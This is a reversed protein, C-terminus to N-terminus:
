CCAQKGCKEYYPGGNNSKVKGSPTWVQGIPNNGSADSAYEQGNITVVTWFHYDGHVVEANLGAASYVARSLNATDACNIHGKNQLCKTPEKYTSCEYGKYDINAVLWEHIAQLKEMDTNKGQCIQQALQNIDEAEGGTIGSSTAGGSSGVGVYNSLDQLNEASEPGYKFDLDFYLPEKKQTRITYGNLYLMEQEYTFPNTLIYFTGGIYRRNSLARCECTNNFDRVYQILLANALYQATELDPASTQVRKELVGYKEVLADYQESILKTGDKDATITQTTQQRQTTTTTTQTQSQQQSLYKEHMLKNDPFREPLQAGGWAITVKNYFGQTNYEMMFVKPDIEKPTITKINEKLTFALWDVYPFLIAANNEVLFVSDTAACIRRICQEFTKDKIQAGGSSSVVSGGTTQGGLAGVIAQAMEEPTAGFVAQAKGQFAQNLEPYTKGAWKDCLSAPCDGHWDKPVGESNFKEMTTFTRSADGRIGLVNYDFNANAADLFSVLSGAMLYVGIKGKADETYSYAGFPTPSIELKEVTYGAQQLAQEVTNQFNSDNSNNVDCGLVVQKSQTNTGNNETSTDNTTDNEAM